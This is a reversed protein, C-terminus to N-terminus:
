PDTAGIQAGWPHEERCRKVNNGCWAGDWCGMKQEFVKMAFIYEGCSGHEPGEGNRRWASRCDVLVKTEDAEFPGM